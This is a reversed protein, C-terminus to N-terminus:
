LLINSMPLKKHSRRHRSVKGKSKGKGFSFRGLLGKKEKVDMSPKDLGETKIDVDGGGVIGSAAVAMDEVGVKPGEVSPAPADVKVSPADVSAKMDPVSVNVDPASVSVDPGKGGVDVSPASVEVKVDPDPVVEGKGSPLEVSSALVELAKIGGEPADVACWIPHDILM